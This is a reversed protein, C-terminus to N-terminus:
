LCKLVVNFHDEWTPLSAPTAQAKRNEAAFAKIQELWLYQDRPDLYVINNGFVERYVRLNSAIVPCGL